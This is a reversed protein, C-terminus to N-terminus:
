PMSKSAYTHSLRTLFDCLKTNQLCKNCVKESNPSFHGFRPTPCICLGLFSPSFLLLIAPVVVLVQYGLLFTAFWWKRDVASNDIRQILVPSNIQNKISLKIMKLRIYEFWTTNLIRGALNLHGRKKRHNRIENKM